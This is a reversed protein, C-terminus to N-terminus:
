EPRGTCSDVRLQFMARVAAAPCLAALHRTPRFGVQDEPKRNAWAERYVASKKAVEDPGGFGLVLAGMGRQGARLLADTNTCALYMPPHPDQFPKPHIPRKPIRIYTGDHEIEDQVFMKPVLYMSEDIMPQLENLDYGFAGAEQQSGGKGVGFHVRGGSLIDLLAVREAVKIPHNMAPPLCVVGHGHGHGHGLGIRTTRGALYALFTEPASM